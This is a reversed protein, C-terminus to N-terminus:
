SCYIKFFDIPKLTNFPVEGRLDRPVGGRVLVELEEKLPFYPEPSVGHKVSSEGEPCDMFEEEFEEKSDKRSHSAEEISQLHSETSTITKDKMDRRNNVRFSMMNEIANLSPRVQAWRKVERYKTETAGSVVKETDSEPRIDSILKRSSSDDGEVSVELVPKTKQETVEAPM